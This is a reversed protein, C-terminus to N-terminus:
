RLYLLVAEGIKGRDRIRSELGKGQETVNGSVLFFLQWYDGIVCQLCVRAIELGQQEELAENRSRVQAAWKALTRALALSAGQTASFRITLISQHYAKAQRETENDLRAIPCSLVPCWKGLRYRLKEAVAFRGSEASALARALYRAVM